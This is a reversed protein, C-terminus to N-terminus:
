INMNLYLPKKSMGLLCHGGSILLVLYPFDVDNMMRPTLAHAEMHHIPILPKNGLLCLEKGHKL